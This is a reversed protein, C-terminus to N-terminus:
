FIRGATPCSTGSRIAGCTNQRCMPNIGGVRIKLWLHFSDHLVDSIGRARDAQLQSERKGGDHCQSRRECRTECRRPPGSADVGEQGGTGFSSGASCRCRREEAERLGKLYAAFGSCAGLFTPTWSEKWSEKERERFPTDLIGEV